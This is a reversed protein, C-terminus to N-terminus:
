NAPHLKKLISAFGPFFELNVLLVHLLSGLITLASAWHLGAQVRIGLTQPHPLQQPLRIQIKRQKFIFLPINVTEMLFM